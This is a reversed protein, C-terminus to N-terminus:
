FFIGVHSLFFRLTWAAATILVCFILRRVSPMDSKAVGIIAVAGGVGLLGPMIWIGYPMTVLIGLCLLAFVVASKPKPKYVEGSHVFRGDVVIDPEGKEIVLRAKTGNLDFEEDFGLISSWSNNLRQPAEDVVLIQDFLTGRYFFEYKKGKIESTWELETKKM